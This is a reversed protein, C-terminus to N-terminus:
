KLVAITQYEKWLEHSPPWHEHGPHTVYYDYLIACNFLNHVQPVCTRLDAYKSRNPPFYFQDVLYGRTFAGTAMGQMLFVREQDKVVDSLDLGAQLWSQLFSRYSDVSFQDKLPSVTLAIDHVKGQYAAFTSQTAQLLLIAGIGWFTSIRRLATNVNSDDRDFSPKAATQSIIECAVVTAGILGPIWYRFTFNMHQYGGVVHYGLYVALGIMLDFAFPLESLIPAHLSGQVHLGRILLVIGIILLVTMVASISIGSLMHTMGIYITYWLPYQGCYACNWGKVLFVLPLPFGFLLQNMGLFMLIPASFVIGAILHQRIRTPH